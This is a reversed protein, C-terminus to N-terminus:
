TAATTARQLTALQRKERPNGGCTMIVSAAAIARAAIATTATAAMTDTNAAYNLWSVALM